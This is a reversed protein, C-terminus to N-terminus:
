AYKREAFPFVCSRSRATTPILKFQKAIGVDFSCSKPRAFEEVRRSKCWLLTLQSDEGDVRSHYAFKENVLHKNDVRKRNKKLPLCLHYPSCWNKEHSLGQWHGWISLPKPLTKVNTIESKV